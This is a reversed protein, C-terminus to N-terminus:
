KNVLEQLWMLKLKAAQFDAENTIKGIYKKIKEIENRRYDIRSEDHFIGTFCEKETLKVPNEDYAALIIVYYINKEFVIAENNITFNLRSLQGRLFELDHQPQLILKSGYIIEKGSELIDIILKGGMGSLVFLDAENPKIPSVGNGLRTEIVDTLGNSKINKSAVSLPKPNIDCAIARSVANKKVASIPLYGHDTGIDALVKCGLPKILDIIRNLRKM